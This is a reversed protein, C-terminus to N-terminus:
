LGTKQNYLKRNKKITRREKGLRPSYSSLKADAKNTGAKIAKKVIRGRQKRQILKQPSNRKGSKQTKTSTKGSVGKKGRDKTVTKTKQNGKDLSYTYNVVKTKKGGRSTVTKKRSNGDLSTSYTVKRKAKPKRHTPALPNALDRKM